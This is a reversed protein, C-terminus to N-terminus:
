YFLTVFANALLMKSPKANSSTGNSVPLTKRPKTQFLTSSTPEDEFDSFLFSLQSM